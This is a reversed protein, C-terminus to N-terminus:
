RFLTLVGVGILFGGWLQRLLEQDLWHALVAGVVAFVMGGVVAPRIITPDLYGNKKHSPIALLAAPLFFLLNIGQATTQEVGAVSVLYLLLLTGGGVGFGSLVGTTVAVFFAIM